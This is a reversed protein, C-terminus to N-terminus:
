TSSGEKPGPNIGLTTLLSSTPGSFGVEASYSALLNALVNSDVELPRTQDPMDNRGQVSGAVEVDLRDMYDVVVPDEGDTDDESAEESDDDDDGGDNNVSTQDGLLKQMSAVLQDPDLDLQRGAKDDDGVVVGAMDSLRHLFDNLETPINDEGGATVGFRAALLKDLSEPTVELWSEDDELGGPPLWGEVPATLEGREYSEVLAVLKDLRSHRADDRSAGWFGAAKELLEQYKRSGQLEGQFYGIDTLKALFLKWEKNSDSGSHSPRHRSLITELGVSLKYGLVQSKDKEDIIWGSSRHPRVNISNLLAYLCRPFTLSYSACKVPQLRPMSRTSRLDLQDHDRLAQILDSVAQKNNHLVAALMDPVVLTTTHLNRSVKLPFGDLRDSICKQVPASACTLHPYNAVFRAAVAPDPRGVPFPSVDGPGSCVPVLHVEGAFLFVRGEALAPEGAWRPVTEAAEILIIEGDNDCVRACVHDVCRTIHNLLGVVMWEDEVSEGYVVSGHLYWGDKGVCHSLNFIQSHWIYNQVPDEICTWIEALSSLGDNCGGTTPYIWYEVADEEM